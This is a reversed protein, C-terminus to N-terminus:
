LHADGHRVEPKKNVEPLLIILTHTHSPETPYDLFFSREAKLDEIIDSTEGVDRYVIYKCAELTVVWVNQDKNM